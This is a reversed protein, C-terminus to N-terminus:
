EEANQWSPVKKFARMAKAASSSESGLDKEYVVNKDTVVFTMVGSSRYEAPYAILAFQSPQSGNLVRFYYGHFLIPQSDGAPMALLRAAPPNVGQGPAATAKKASVFEHCIEIAALENEGIRRYLVEMAGTEPDFRWMGDKQVLPIPFPWNEAGIYLTMVGDPGRGIRHMQEYKEVFLERDTKDQSEENSSALETPGGLIRTIADVDNSKVAQFLNQSADAASPFALQAAPQALAVCAGITALLFFMIFKRNNM